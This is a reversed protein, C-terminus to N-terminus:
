PPDAKCRLPPKLPLDPPRRPEPAEAAPGFRIAFVTAVLKRLRADQDIAIDPDFSDLQVSGMFLSAALRSDEVAIADGLRAAEIWAELRARVGGVTPIDDRGMWEKPTVGALILLSALRHMDRMLSTLQAGLRLLQDAIREADPDDDFMSAWDVPAARAIAAKLLGARSGFRQFLVTESVAVREAVAALSLHPGLATEALVADLIDEDSVRRPRPM